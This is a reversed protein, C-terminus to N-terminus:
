KSISAKIDVLDVKVPPGMTSAVTGSVWYKGKAGSPRNKEVANVVAVLNENLASPDFSSKGIPVHINGQKDTRIEVKGAMFANVSAVVDTTVTGAKPSPMLGKPGLVKGLKALKPMAAPVALLVDFDVNGESIEEILDAMGAKAAGAELAAPADADECLVAISVEKGTGKPLSVTTRLQQDNYKPDIGLRAHFEMTEDFSATAMDKSKKVADSLTHLIQKDYGADLDRKRRSPLAKMVPALARRFDAQHKFRGYEAMDFLETAPRVPRLHWSRAMALFMGALGGFIAFAAVQQQESKPEAEQEKQQEDKRRRVEGPNPRSNGYSGAFRKGKKTRKDGRGMLVAEPLQSGVLVQGPEALPAFFNVDSSGGRVALPSFLARDGSQAFVALAALTALGLAVVRKM